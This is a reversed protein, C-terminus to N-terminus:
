GAVVAEHAKQAQGGKRFLVLTAILGLIALVALGALLVVGKFIADGRRGSTSRLPSSLDDGPMPRPIVTEHLPPLAM